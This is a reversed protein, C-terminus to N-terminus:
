NGLWRAQINIAEPIIGDKFISRNAMKARADYQAQVDEFQSRLGQVIASLRAHEGKDEFTWTTRAGASSEFTAVAAAAIEGKRSIAKLDEWTQKFWEYNYIANDGTLTKDVIQEATQVTRDFVRVPLLAVRLARAGIGLVVIGIITLVVIGFIKM